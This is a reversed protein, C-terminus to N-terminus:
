AFKHFTADVQLMEGRGTDWFGPEIAVLRYGKNKILSYMEEFLIAGDYLPIMSMEIQITDIFPLSEVAGDLVQKERAYDRTARGESRKHEGVKEVVSQREAILEVLQRDLENLRQRLDALDM